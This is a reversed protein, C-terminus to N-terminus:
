IRSDQRDRWPLFCHLVGAICPDSQLWSSVAGLKANTLQLGYVVTDIIYKHSWCVDTSNHLPDKEPETFHVYVGNYSSHYCRRFPQIQFHWFQFCWRTYTYKVEQWYRVTRSHSQWKTHVTVPNVGVAWLLHFYRGHKMKGVNKERGTTRRRQQNSKVRCDENAYKIWQEARGCTQRRCTDPLSWSNQIHRRGSRMGTPLCFRGSHTQCTEAQHPPSTLEWRWMTHSFRRSPVLADPVSATIRMVRITQGLLTWVEKYACKRVQICTMFVFDFWLELSFRDDLPTKIHM